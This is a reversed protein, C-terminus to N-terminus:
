RGDRAFVTPDTVEVPDRLAAFGLAPDFVSTETPM